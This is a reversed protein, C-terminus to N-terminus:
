RHTKERKKKKKQHRSRRKLVNEYKLLLFARDRPFIKNRRRARSEGDFYRRPADVNNTKGRDPIAIDRSM